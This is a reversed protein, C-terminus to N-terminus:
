DGYTVPGRGDKTWRRKWQREGSWVLCPLVNGCNFLSGGCEYAKRKVMPEMKNPILGLFTDFTENLATPCLPQISLYTSRRQNDIGVRKWIGETCHKRASTNILSMDSWLSTFVASTKLNKKNIGKNWFKEMIHDWFKSSEPFAASIFILFHIFWFFHFVPLPARLTEWYTYFFLPLFVIPSCQM